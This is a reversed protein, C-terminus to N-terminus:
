FNIGLTKKLSEIISERGEMHGNLAPIEAILPYEGGSQWEIIRNGLMVIVKETIILIFIEGYAGNIINDFEKEAMQDNYIVKGEIGISQFGLVVDEDGLVFLRM